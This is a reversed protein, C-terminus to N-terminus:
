CRSSPPCRPCRCHRPRSGDRHCIGASRRRRERMYNLEPSGEDFNLYPVDDVKADPVPVAFRDRFARISSTGMKKQQHTINQSEGSEGM